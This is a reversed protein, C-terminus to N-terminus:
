ESAGGAQSLAALEKIRADFWQDAASRRRQYEAKASTLKEVLKQAGAEDGRWPLIKTADCFREEGRGAWQRIYYARSKSVKVIQVAEFGWDHKIAWPLPTHAPTDPTTTM